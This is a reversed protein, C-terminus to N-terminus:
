LSGIRVGTNLHQILEAPVEDIEVEFGHYINSRTNKFRFYRHSLKDYSFFDSGYPIGTRLLINARDVDRVPMAAVHEKLGTDYYPYRKHKDSHEFCPIIQKLRTTTHVNEVVYKKADSRTVNLNPSELTPTGGFSIWTFDETLKDPPASGIHTGTVAPDASCIEYVLSSNIDCDFRNKTYTFWLRCIDADLARLSQITASFIQNPILTSTDIESSYSFGYRGAGVAPALEKFCDVVNRTHSLAIALSQCQSDVSAPSLL